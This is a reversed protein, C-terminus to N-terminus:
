GLSVGRDSTKQILRSFYLIDDGASASLELLLIYVLSMERERHFRRLMNQSDQKADHCAM